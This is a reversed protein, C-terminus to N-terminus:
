GQRHFARVLGLKLATDAPDARLGARFEAEAEASQGDDLLADGLLRRLAADEPAMRVAERLARVRASTDSM